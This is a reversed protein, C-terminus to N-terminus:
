SDVEIHAVGEGNTADGNGWTRWGAKEKASWHKFSSIYLMLKM